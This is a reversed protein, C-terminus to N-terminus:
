VKSGLKIDLWDMLPATVTEWSLEERMCNRQMRALRERDNSLQRIIEVMEIAATELEVLFGNEGHDIRESVQGVNTAVPVCGCLQAESITLPLGEFRSPMVILDSQEYLAQIKASDRLASLRKVAKPFQIEETQDGIVSSGVITWEVDLKQRLTQEVVEQLISLGKQLDMRGFFLISLPRQTRDVGIVRDSGNFNHFGHSNPLALLKEEPVGAGHLWDSLGRSCTLILDFAAEFSLAVMPSGVSRGFANTDVLHEYALTVVGDRRLDAMYHDLGSRHCGIVVDYSLLQGYVDHKTPAKEPLYTGGYVTGQWSLAGDVPIISIEDYSALIQETLPFPQPLAVLLTTEYGARRLARAVNHTVKEVGGFSCITLIFCIRRKQRRLAPWTPGCSFREEILATSRAYSSLWDSRWDIREDISSCRPDKTLKGIFSILPKDGTLGDSKAGASFSPLDYHASQNRDGKPINYKARNILERLTLGYVVTNTPAANPPLWKMPSVFEGGGATSAITLGGSSALNRQIEFFFQRTLGANGLAKVFTRTAFVVHNPFHTKRDDIAHEFFRDILESESITVPEEPDTFLLWEEDSDDDVDILKMAFRPCEEHELAVMSPYSFLKGHNQRIREHLTDKMKESDALMSQPRKRYHLTPHEFPLGRFGAAACGIWFEWDEFGHKFTEDFRRGQRFIEVRVLSGAECINQATHRLVSYAGGASDFHPMGFMDFKPYFWGAEPHTDLYQRFVSIADRDIMNDSDLLFIAELDPLTELAHHIGTNRAASLGGNLRHVVSIRDGHTLQWNDLSRKTELHPCGDNVVIIRYGESMSSGLVSVIAENVFQSHRHVPIVVALWTKRSM